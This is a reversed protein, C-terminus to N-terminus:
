KEYENEGKKHEYRDDGQISTVEAQMQLLEQWDQRLAALRANLDTIQQERNQILNLVKEAEVNYSVGLRDLASTAQRFADLEAQHAAFFQKQAL